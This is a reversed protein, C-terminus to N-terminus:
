YQNATSKGTTILNYNRNIRAARARERAHWSFTYTHVGQQYSQRIQARQRYVRALRASCVHATERCRSLPPLASGLM